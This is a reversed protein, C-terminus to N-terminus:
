KLWMLQIKMFINTTKADPYQLHDKQYVSKTKKLNFMIADHIMIYMEIKVSSKEQKLPWSM